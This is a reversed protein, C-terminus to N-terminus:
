VEIAKAEDVQTLQPEKAEIPALGLKASESFQQVLLQVLKTAEKRVETAPCLVVKNIEAEGVSFSSYSDKKTEIRLKGEIRYSKYETENNTM